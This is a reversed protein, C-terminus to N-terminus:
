GEQTSAKAERETRTMAIWIKWVANCATDIDDGNVSLMAAVTPEKARIERSVDQIQMAAKRLSTIALQLKRASM